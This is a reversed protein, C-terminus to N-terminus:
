LRARLGVTATTPIQRPFAFCDVCGREHMEDRTLHGAGFHLPRDKLRDRIAQWSERALSRRDAIVEITLHVRVRDPLPLAQDPQLVGNVLTADVESIM